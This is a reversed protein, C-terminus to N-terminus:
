GPVEEHVVMSPHALVRAADLVILAEDTVGRVFEAHVGSLTAPPPQLSAEPLARVQLVVDAVIGLELREDRIVIARTANTLGREPMGFVRKLDIVPCIEGRVNIIGLVFAPTCPVRTMDRLTFVQRVYSSEMAYREGALQFTLVELMPGTEVRADVAALRGARERLIRERAEASPAGDSDLVQQAAAVRRRIAEWDTV